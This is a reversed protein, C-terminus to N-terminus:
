ASVCACFFHFLCCALSYPKTSERRSWFKSRRSEIQMANPRTPSPHSAIFTPKGHINLAATQLAASSHWHYHLSARQFCAAAGSADEGLHLLCLRTPTPLATTSHREEGRGGGWREAHTAVLQCRSHTKRGFRGQPSTRVMSSRQPKVRPEEKDAKARLAEEGGVKTCTSNYNRGRIRPKERM